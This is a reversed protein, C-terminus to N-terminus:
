HGSRIREAHARRRLDNLFLCEKPMVQQTVNSYTGPGSFEQVREYVRELAAQIADCNKWIALQTDNFNEMGMAELWKRHNEQRASWIFYGAITFFITLVVLTAIVMSNDPKSKLKSSPVM